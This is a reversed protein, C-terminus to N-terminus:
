SLRPKGPAKKAPTLRNKRDMWLRMKLDRHIVGHEHAYAVTQCVQEFIALLKGRDLEAKPSVSGAPTSKRRLLEQLTQGRVLKMALFPRGDPLQGREYVPPIGPHQLQATIHTERIFRAVTSEDGMRDPRVIKVAVRRHFQLDEAEWVESQGGANLFEVLRYRSAIEQGAQLDSVKQSPM